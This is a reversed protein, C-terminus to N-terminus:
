QTHEKPTKKLKQDISASSACLWFYMCARGNANRKSSFFFREQM